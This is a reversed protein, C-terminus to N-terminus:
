RMFVAFYSLLFLSFLPFTCVNLPLHVSIADSMKLLEEFGVYEAGAEKEEKLRRRNFYVVRMGLKEVREKLAGGIGGMGLIGLVKGEPDHGLGPAPKGRWEGKRLAM